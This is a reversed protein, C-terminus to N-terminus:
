SESLIQGEIRYGRITCKMKPKVKSRKLKRMNACLKSMLLNHDSDCDAGPYTRVGTIANRFRENIMIYDIQNRCTDGPSRWTYLNKM